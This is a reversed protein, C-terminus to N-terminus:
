EPSPQPRADARSVYAGPNADFAEKCSTSCFYYTQGEYRSTGAARAEDVQMGCAPDKALTRDPYPKQTTQVAMPPEWRDMRRLRACWCTSSGRITTHAGAFCHWATWAGFGMGVLVQNGTSLDTDPSGRCRVSVCTPHRSSLRRLQHVHEGCPRWRRLVSSSQWCRAHMLAECWGLFFEGRVAASRWWNRLLSAERTQEAVVLMALAAVEPGVDKGLTLRAMRVGEDHHVTMTETFRRDFERSEASGVPWRPERMTGGLVEIVALPVVLASLLATTAKAWRLDVQDSVQSVRGLIWPVLPQLTPLLLYYEILSTLVAWPLAALLLIRSSLLLTWRRGLAFFVVAWALDASQHVFVGAAIERLGPAARLGDLGLLVTGIDMWDIARSRGIRPAGLTILITSFTGSILGMAMAAQWALRRRTKRAHETM